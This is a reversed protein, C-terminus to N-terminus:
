DNFFEKELKEAEQLTSTILYFTVSEPDTVHLITRLEGVVYYHILQYASDVPCRSDSDIDLIM